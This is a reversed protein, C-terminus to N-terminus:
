QEGGSAAVIAEASKATVRGSARTPTAESGTGTRRSTTESGAEKLAERVTLVKRNAQPRGSWAEGSSKWRWTVGMSPVRAALVRRARASSWESM